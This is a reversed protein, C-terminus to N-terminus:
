EREHIEESLRKYSVSGTCSPAYDFIAKGIAQAEAIKVNEPIRTEYIIDGYASSVANLTDKSLKTNKKYRTILIGSIKTNHEIDVYINENAWKVNRALSTVGEVSFVDLTFPVIIDTAVACANITLTEFSPPCDILIYDFKNFYAKLKRRLILNMGGLSAMQMRAVGLSDKSPLIFLDKQYTAQICDAASIDKDLLLEATTPVDKVNVGLHISAHGQEDMDVILVKHGKKAWAAGLNVATTTKAVGGKKNAIAYIKKAM